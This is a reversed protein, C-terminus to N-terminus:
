IATHRIEARTMSAALECVIGDPFYSFTANEFMSAILTSGFGKKRPQTVRPGGVEQWRFRLEQQSGDTGWSLHVSGAASSLSGYKVANTVLEHLAMTFNQAQHPDLVVEKGTITVRSLFPELEGCILDILRAGSWNSSALQRNARALAQLRSEFDDRLEELSGSGHLTQHAMAQVVTLLNNTRHQLEHVLTQQAEQARKREIGLAIQSAITCALNIEPAEFEHPTAYYTMFKGILRANAILPIFALARIGEAMVTKKLADSEGSELIDEVAIPRPNVADATWPSHGEVAKRYQGSLGRWAVFRMVGNGDIVLISARDCELGSVIADLAADYVAELTDTYALKNAFAYLAAVERMRRGAADTSPNETLGEDIAARLKQVEQGLEVLGPPAQGLM